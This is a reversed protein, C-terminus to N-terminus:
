ASASARSDCSAQRAQRRARTWIAQAQGLIVAHANRTDEGGLAALGGTVRVAAAAAFAAAPWQGAAAHLAMARTAACAWDPAMVQVPRPAASLWGPDHSEALCCGDGRADQDAVAPGSMALAAEAAGLGADTTALGEAAHGVALLCRGLHFCASALGAERAALDSAPARRYMVIVERLLRIADKTNGTADAALAVRVLVDIRDVEYRRPDAAALAAYHGASETLLAVSELVREYRAHGVLAAALDPRHRAPERASAYLQRSIELATAAHGAAKEHDALLAAHVAEAVHFEYRRELTGQESPKLRAKFM